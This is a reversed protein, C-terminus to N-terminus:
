IVCCETSSKMSEVTVGILSKKPAELVVEKLRTLFSSVRKSLVLSVAKNTDDDFYSVIIEAAEYPLNELIIGDKTTVEIDNKSEHLQAAVVKKSTFFKLFIHKVFDLLYELIFFLREYSHRKKIAEFEKILEQKKTKGNIFGLIVDTNEEIGKSTNIQMLEGLNPMKKIEKFVILCEKLENNVKSANNEDPTVGYILLLCMIEKQNNIIAYRLAVNGDETNVGHKLLLRVVEIHNKQAAIHLATKGNFKADIDIEEHDLLLEVVKVHGCSAAVYLATEKGLNQTNIDAGHKLLLKVIKTCGGKAAVYLATRKYLDCTNVDIKEHNLLLKVIGVHGCSAAVYLATEGNLKANVNIEKHKLLLEVIEKDGSEVAIHLATKGYYSAYRCSYDRANVNIKQTLLFKVEEVDEIKVAALFADTFSM